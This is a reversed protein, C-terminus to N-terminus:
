GTLDPRFYLDYRVGTGEDQSRMLFAILTPDLSHERKRLAHLSMWSLAYNQAPFYRLPHGSDIHM